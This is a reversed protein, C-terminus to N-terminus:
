RLDTCLRRHISRKYVLCILLVIIEPAIQKALESRIKIKLLEPGATQELREFNGQEPLKLLIEVEM